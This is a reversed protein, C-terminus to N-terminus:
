RFSDRGLPQGIYVGDGGLYEKQEGDILFQVRDVSSFETATFVIQELQAVLGETGLSNFRFDESFNLYATRNSVSASLLQTDAPVLNLLGRNLEETSPGQLLSSINATLPTNSVPLRRESAEASIHGDDSVRIYYLVARRTEEPPDAPMPEPEPQTEPEEDPTVDPESQSDPEEERDPMTTEPVTEPSDNQTPTLPQLIDDDLRRNLEDVGPETQPDGPEDSLGLRTRLVDLLGTSEMVNQINQRSFLFVVLIFLIFAIWFIIGLSVRKRTRTRGM